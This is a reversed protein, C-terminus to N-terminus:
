FPRTEFSGRNFPPYTWNVVIGTSRKYQKSASFGPTALPNKKISFFIIKRNNLRIVGGRGGM